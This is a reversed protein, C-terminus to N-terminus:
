EIKLDMGLVYSISLLTDLKPNGEGSEIALITNINVDALDALEQQLLGLSKRRNKIVSGVDAKNM